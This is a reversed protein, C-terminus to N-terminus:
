NSVRGRDGKESWLFFNDFWAHAGPGQSIAALGIQETRAQPLSLSGAIMWQDGDGSCLGRLEDGTRELRLWIPRRAVHGRGVHRFRGTMCAKLHVAAREGGPISCLELRAFQQADQWLLLGGFVDVGLGLEVRTQAVFDGQVTAMLRPANLDAEPWLDCGDPPVVGLWGPRTSRDLRGRGTVDQWVLAPDWGEGAFEERLWPEESRNRPSAPELHWQRLPPEHGARRCSEAMERCLAVFTADEGRRHCKEEIVELVRQLPIPADPDPLAIRFAEMVAAWDERATAVRMLTGSLSESLMREQRALAQPLCARALAEAREVQADDTSLEDALLSRPYNVWDEMGHAECVAIAREYMSRSTEPGGLTPNLELFM